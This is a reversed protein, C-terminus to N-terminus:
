DGKLAENLLTNKIKGHFYGVTVGKLLAPYPFLGTRLLLGLDSASNGLSFESRPYKDERVRQASIICFIKDGFFSNNKWSVKTHCQTVDLEST